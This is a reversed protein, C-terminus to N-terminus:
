RLRRVSELTTAVIPDGKGWLDFVADAWRKAIDRQNARGALVARFAMVRVLFPTLEPNRLASAPAAPLGRLANDLQRAAGATDGLATRLWAEGFVADMTIESPANSFHLTALSDLLNRAAKRDGRAAAALANIYLDPTPGLAEVHQPGITPAAVTLPRSLIAVRIADAQGPPILANADTAVRAAIALVSDAPGGFYAYVSLSAEDRGLAPPLIVIEGTALRVPTHVARREAIDRVRSPQGRLSAFNTLMIGISDQLTSDSPSERSWRLATDALAAARDFRGLRIYIGVEGAAMGLQDLYSSKAGPKAALKRAIGIQELASVGGENLEGTNELIRSLTEHSGPDQPAVGIWEIGRARLRQGNRKAAAAVGDPDVTRWPGM